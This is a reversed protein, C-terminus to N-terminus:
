PGRFRYPPVYTVHLVPRGSSAASPYLELAATGSAERELRLMMARPLLTSSQWIRLLDTVDIRVTDAGGVRVRASGVESTDQEAVLPSKAGFDAGLAHARIRFTDDPAGVAPRAPVFLLTARVVQTSDVIRRPASDARLLVRAAPLGGVRLGVPAGLGMPDGLFTDFVVGRQESRTVATGASDVRVFRRFLSPSLTTGRISDVSVLDVFAPGIVRLGIRTRFSDAEFNPFAGPSVTVLVSGAQVSDPIAITGVYATDDFFPAVQDWTTASDPTVGLRYVAIGLGSDASRRAVLVEIQLSDTAIISDEVNTETTAYTAAFPFFELVARAEGAGDPGAVQLQGSHHAFRYGVFSSEAVIVDALVTDRVTIDGVLCFEPCLGPANVSDECGTVTAVLATGMLATWPASRFRGLVSIAQALM